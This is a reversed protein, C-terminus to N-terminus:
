TATTETGAIMLLDANAYLEDMTMDAGAEKHELMMGLMDPRETKMALRANVKDVTNQYSADISDQMSKPIMMTALRFLLPFYQLARSAGVLYISVFLQSLWDSYEMNECLGLSKGFMLDAITDFTVCNFVKAMDVSKNEKMREGLRDVMMSTYTTLMGQQLKLAREGFAPALMKRQRGHDAGALLISRKTNESLAYMTWDKTLEPKKFGYIDKWAPTIFSLENPAM